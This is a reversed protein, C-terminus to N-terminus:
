SFIIYTKLKSILKEKTKFRYLPFLPVTLNLTNIADNDWISIDTTEEHFNTILNYIRDKKDDNVTLNESNITLAKIYGKTDFELPNSLISTRCKNCNSSFILDRIGLYTSLKEFDSTQYKNNQINIKLTLSFSYKIKLTVDLTGDKISQPLDRFSGNEVSILKVVIKNGCSFCPGNYFIFDKVTFKKM